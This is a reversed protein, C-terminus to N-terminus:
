SNASNYQEIVKDVVTIVNVRGVNQETTKQKGEPKMEDGFYFKKIGDAGVWDRFADKYTNEYLKKPVVIICPVIRNKMDEKSYPSNDYEGDQPELVLNDFDFAIDRHGQVYEEYVGGANHEYPIDNWDDGWYEKSADGLLFRVVNGKKEFDIIQM